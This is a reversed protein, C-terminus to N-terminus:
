GIEAEKSDAGLLSRLIGWVGEFADELLCIDGSFLIEEVTLREEVLDGWFVWILDGFYWFGILRDYRLLDLM